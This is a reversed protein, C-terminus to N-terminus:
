DTGKSRRQKLLWEYFAPNGYTADWTNHALDPYRICTVDGGCSKLTAILEETKQNISLSDNVGVGAWVPIGKMRKVNKMVHANEVSGSLPAIAAFVRPHRVALEWTASAGM